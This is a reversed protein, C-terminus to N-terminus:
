STCPLSGAFTYVTLMTCAGSHLLPFPFAPPIWIRWFWSAWWWRRVTICCNSSSQSHCCFNLVAYWHTILLFFFALFLNFFLLLYYSLFATISQYIHFFYTNMLVSNKTWLKAHLFFLVKLLISLLMPLHQNLFSHINNTLIQFFAPQTLHHCGMKVAAYHKHATNLEM